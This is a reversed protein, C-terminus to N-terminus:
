YAKALKTFAEIQETTMKKGVRAMMFNVDYRAIDPENTEYEQFGASQLVHQLMRMYAYPDGDTIALDWHWCYELSVVIYRELQPHQFLNNLLHQGIKLGRYAPAVEIVGLMKLYDLKQWREDLEPPLVITYGIITNEYLALSMYTEEDIEMAQIMAEQQKHSDRFRNLEKHFPFQRLTHLAKARKYIWKIQVHNTSIKM